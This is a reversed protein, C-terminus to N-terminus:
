EIMEGSSNLIKVEGMNLARIKTEIEKLDGVIIWTLSDPSILEAAASRVAEYSLNRMQKEYDFIYSNPRNFRVNSALLGVM